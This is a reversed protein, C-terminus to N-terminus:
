SEQDHGDTEEKYEVKYNVTFNVDKFVRLMNAPCGDRVRKEIEASIQDLSDSTYVVNLSHRLVSDNCIGTNIKCLSYM